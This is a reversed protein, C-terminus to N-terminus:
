GEPGRVPPQPELSSTAASNTVVSNRTAVANEADSIDEDQVFLEDQGANTTGELRGRPALSSIPREASGVGVPNDALGVRRPAESGAESM